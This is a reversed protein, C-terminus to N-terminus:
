IVRLVDVDWRGRTTIALPGGRLRRESRINADKAMRHAKTDVAKAAPTTPISRM